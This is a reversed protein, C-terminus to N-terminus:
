RERQVIFFACDTRDPSAKIGAVDREHRLLAPTDAADPHAAKFAQIRAELPAGYATWWFRPPLRHTHTRAFGHKELRTWISDFWELTEHMVLHGGPRLLRHCEPLTRAPDLLHLVGEEWLLDFGRAPLEGDLISGQVITIRKHLGALAVRQRLIELAAGDPDVGVLSGGSLRALEMTQMGTGCGIDLIRQPATTGLLAYAERTYQLFCGRLEELGLAQELKDDAIM